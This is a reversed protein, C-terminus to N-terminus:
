KNKIAHQERNLPSCYGIIGAFVRLLGAILIIVFLSINKEVLFGGLFAGIPISVYSITRTVSVVRGLLNKEVVRQRLTFYAVVNLNGFVGTLALFTAIITFNTTFYIGITALGALLTANAIIKGASIRSIVRPAILVGVLAGLGISSIILGYTASSGHLTHLVFFALNAQYLNIAFNTILFLLSGTWVVKNKRAASFGTSIDKWISNSKKTIVSQDPIRLALLGALLFSLANFWLLYIPSVILILTGAIMPGVLSLTNDVGEIWSNVQSLKKEEVVQPILSNFAPHTLPEVSSLLFSAMYVLIMHIQSQSLEFILFFSFFLSAFYGWYIIKTKRMKDALVGGYITFIIWPIFTVGYLTAMQYASGTKNFIIVPVAIQQLWNGIASIGFASLLFYYAKDM